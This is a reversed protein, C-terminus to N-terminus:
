SAGGLKDHVPEYPKHVHADLDIHSWRKIKIRDDVTSQM